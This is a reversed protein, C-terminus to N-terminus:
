LMRKLSSLVTMRATVAAIAAVTLPVLALTAAELPTLTVAPLLGAPLRAFAVAIGAGAIVAGILGILGGKLGLWLAQRAFASGIAGDPAGIIHLLEITEAHVALASRTAFIVTGVAALAVLAVVAAALAEIARLITVLRDTWRRHDDVTTGPVESSLLGTLGTINVRTGADLRVDILSPLPLSAIYAGDGLWPELLAATEKADLARVSAVGQTSRLTGVATEVRKAQAARGAADARATDPVQVTLVGVLGRDWKASADALVMLGALALAALFVVLAILWPVFRRGPDAAFPLPHRRRITM